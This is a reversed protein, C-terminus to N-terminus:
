EPVRVQMDVIEALIGRQRAVYNVANQIAEDDHKYRDSGGRTWWSRPEGVLRSLAAQSTGKLVRRVAPGDEPCDAIVVHAHNAMIAARLVHWGRERSAKVFEEAVCIAQEATLSITPSKQLEGARQHTLPDAPSIATGPINQKPAYTRDAQLTNSVYGRRDGPLWSGYCTWTIHLAFPPDSM